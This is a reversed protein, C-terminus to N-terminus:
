YVCVNASSRLVFVFSRNRVLKKRKEGRLRRQHFFRTPVTSRVRIRTCRVTKSAVVLSGFLGIFRRTTPVLFTSFRVLRVVSVRTRSRNVGGRGTYIRSPFVAVVVTRAVAALLMRGMHAVAPVNLSLRQFLPTIIPSSLPFM